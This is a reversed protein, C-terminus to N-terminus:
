AHSHKEHTMRQARKAVCVYVAVTAAAWMAAYTCSFRPRELLTSPRQCCFSPKLLVLLLLTLTGVVAACCSTSPADKMRRCVLHWTPVPPAAQSRTQQLRHQWLSELQASMSMLYSAPCAFCVFAKETRLCFPYGGCM